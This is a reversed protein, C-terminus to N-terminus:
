CALPTRCSVTATWQLFCCPACLFPHSCCARLCACGGQQPGLMHYASTARACAHVFRAPRGGRGGSLQNMFDLADGFSLLSAPNFNIELHQESTLWLNSRCVPAIPLAPESSCGLVGRCARGHGGLRPADRRRGRSVDPPRVPVGAVCHGCVRSACALLGLAGGLALHFLQPVRCPLARQRPRCMPAHTRPSSSTRYSAPPLTRSSVVCFAICLCAALVYRGGAKNPPRDPLLTAMDYALDVQAPRPARTCAHANAAAQLLPQM